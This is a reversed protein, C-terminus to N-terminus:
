GARGPAILQPTESISPPSTRHDDAGDFAPPGFTGSAPWQFTWIAHLDGRGQFSLMDECLVHLDFAVTCVELDAGVVRGGQLLNDQGVVRDGTSLPGTPFQSTVGAASVFEIQTPHVVLSLLTPRATATQDSAAAVPGAVVGIGLGIAAIALLVPRRTFM